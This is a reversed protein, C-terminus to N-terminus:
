QSAIEHATDGFYTNLTQTTNQLSTISRQKRAVILQNKIIVFDPYIRATYVTSTLLCPCNLDHITLQLQFLFIYGQKFLKEQKCLMYHCVLCWKHQIIKKVSDTNM